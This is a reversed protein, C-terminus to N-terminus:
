TSNDLEAPAIAIEHFVVADGTVFREVDYFAQRRRLRVSRVPEQLRFATEPGRRYYQGAPAALQGLWAPLPSIRRGANLGVFFARLFRDSAAVVKEEYRNRGYAAKVDDLAAEEGATAILADRVQRPDATKRVSGPQLMDGDHSDMSDIRSGPHAQIVREDLYALAMVRGVARANPGFLRAELAYERGSHGVAVM